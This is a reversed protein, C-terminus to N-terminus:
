QQQSYINYISWKNSKISINEIYKFLLIIIHTNGDCKITKNDNSLYSWFVLYVVIKRDIRVKKKGM